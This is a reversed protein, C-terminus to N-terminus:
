CGFNLAECVRVTPKVASVLGQYPPPAGLTCVICLQMQVPPGILGAPAANANPIGTQVQANSQIPDLHLHM